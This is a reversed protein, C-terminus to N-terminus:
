KRELFNYNEIGEIIGDAREANAFYIRRRGKLKNLEEGHNGVVVVALCCDTQLFLFRLLTNVSPNKSDIGIMEMQCFYFGLPSARVGVALRRDTM